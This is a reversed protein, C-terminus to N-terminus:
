PQEGARRWADWWLDDPIEVGCRDAILRATGCPWDPAEGDFGGFDDGACGQGDPRHRGLVAVATADGVCAALLRAHTAVVEADAVARQAEFAARQQATPPNTVADLLRTPADDLLETAVPVVASLVEARIAEPVLFGRGRIADLEVAFDARPNTM